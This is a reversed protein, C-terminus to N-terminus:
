KTIDYDHELFRKFELEIRIENLATKKVFNLKELPIGTQTSISNIDVTSFNQFNTLGHKELVAYNENIIQLAKDADLTSRIFNIEDRSINEGYLDKRIAILVDKTMNTFEEDTNSQLIGKLYKNFARIVSESAIFLLENYLYNGIRWNALDHTPNGRLDMQKMFNNVFSRYMKQKREFVDKRRHIELEQKVRSHHTHLLIIGSITAGASAIIIQLLWDPIWPDAM